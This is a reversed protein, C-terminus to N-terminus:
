CAIQYSEIEVAAFGCQPRCRDLYFAMRNPIDVLLLCWHVENEHVPVVLVDAKALPNGKETWRRVNMYHVHRLLTGISAGHAPPQAGLLKTLFFTSFLYRRQRQEAPLAAHAMGLLTNVVDDQLACVGTATTSRRM